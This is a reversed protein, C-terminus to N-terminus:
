RINQIRQVVTGSQDSDSTAETESFAINAKKHVWSAKRQKILGWLVSFM